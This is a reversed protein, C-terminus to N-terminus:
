LHELEEEESAVILHSMLKVDNERKASLGAAQHFSVANEASLMFNCVLTAIDM